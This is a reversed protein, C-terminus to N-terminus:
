GEVVDLGGSQPPKGHVNGPQSSIASAALAQNEADKCILKIGILGNERGAAKCLLRAAKRRRLITEVRKPQHQIADCGAPLRYRGRERPVKV